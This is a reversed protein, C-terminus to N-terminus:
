ADLDDYNWVLDLQEVVVDTFGADELLGTITAPDRFTFMNPEDPDPPAFAGTEVLQAQPVAAWPNDAPDTWASLAVRGGPRLVRRTESLATAPDALLMYGWRVIVGDLSAAPLDIWEANMTRFEANDIGLEAARAQAIDVMAQAGDSIIVTGGPAVLEAALLGPTARDRPSSSSATAPSRSSRM